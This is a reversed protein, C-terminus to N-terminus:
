GSRLSPDAKGRRKHSRPRSLRIRRSRRLIVLHSPPASTRCTMAGCPQQLPPHCGNTFGEGCLPSPAGTRVSPRILPRRFLPFPLHEIESVRMRRAKPWGGEGQFPSPKRSPCAGGRRCLRLPKPTPYPLGKPRRGNVSWTGNTRCLWASNRFRSLQLKQLGMAWHGPPFESGGSLNQAGSIKQRVWPTVGTIPTQPYPSYSRSASM